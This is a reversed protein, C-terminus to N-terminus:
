KKFRLRFFQQDGSPTVTMPNSMNPQVEFWTGNILDDTTELAFGNGTWSFVINTGDYAMNLTPRRPPRLGPVINFSLDLRAGFEVDLDGTGTRAKHV